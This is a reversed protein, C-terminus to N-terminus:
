SELALLNGMLFYNNLYTIAIAAFELSRFKIYIATRKNIIWSINGFNSFLNYINRAPIENKTKFTLVQSKEKTESKLKLPMDERKSDSDKEVGNDFVLM